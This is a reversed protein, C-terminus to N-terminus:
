TELILGLKGWKLGTLSSNTIMLTCTGSNESKPYNYCAPKLEYADYGFLVTTQKWGKSAQMNGEPKMFMLGWPPLNLNSGAQTKQTRFYMIDETFHVWRRGRPYLPCCCYGVLNPSDRPCGQSVGLLSRMGPISHKLLYDIARQPSCQQALHSIKM